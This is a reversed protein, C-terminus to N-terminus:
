WVSNDGVDRGLDCTYVWVIADGDQVIYRKCGYNPFQGNVKYMWGSLPGGDFEYLYNIGEVYAGSYLSDERFEFQIDNARCARLIVDFANEGETFQITTKPLIVGDEPIYPIIAENDINEENLLTTCYIEMTCHYTQPNNPDAVANEPIPPWAGPKKGSEASSEPKTAASDDTINDPITVSVEDKKVDDKKVEDKKVDDKKADNNVGNGENKGDANGNVATDDKKVVETNKDQASNEGGSIATTDGGGAENESLEGDSNNDESNDAEGNATESDGDTNMPLNEVVQTGNPNDGKGLDAPEITLRMLTGVVFIAILAIIALTRLQKKQM